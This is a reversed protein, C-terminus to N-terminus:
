KGIELTIKFFVGNKKESSSEEETIQTPIFVDYGALNPVKAKATNSVALPPNIAMSEGEEEDIFSAMLAASNNVSYLPLTESGSSSDTYDATVIQAGSTSSTTGVISSTLSQRYVPEFSAMQATMQSSSTSSSGNVETRLRIPLVLAFALAAAAGAAIYCVFHGEKLSLVNKGSSSATKVKSYSMRAQLRNFSQEMDSSSLELNKSDAKFAEKIAKLRALEKQCKACTKIHEEYEKIYTLPLENDLYVSHIDKEPCTSM